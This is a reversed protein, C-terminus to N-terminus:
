VCTYVVLPKSEQDRSEGVGGHGSQCIPDGFAATALAVEM